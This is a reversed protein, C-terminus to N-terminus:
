GGREKAADHAALAARAQEKAEEKRKHCGCGCWAPDCQDEYCVDCVSTSLVIELAEALREADAEAARYLELLQRVGDAVDNGFNISPINILWAAAWQLQDDAAEARAIAAALKGSLYENADNAIQLDDLVVAKYEASWIDSM